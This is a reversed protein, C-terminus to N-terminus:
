KDQNKREKRKTATAHQMVAQLFIIILHNQASFQQYNVKTNPTKHYVVLFYTFFILYWLRLRCLTCLMADTVLQQSKELYSKHRKAESKRNCKRNDVFVCCFHDDCWSHHHHHSSGEERGGGVQRPTLPPPPSVLSKLFLILNAQSHVLLALILKHLCSPISMSKVWSISKKNDKFWM